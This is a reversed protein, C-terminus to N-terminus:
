KITLHGVKVTSKVYRFLLIMPTGFMILSLAFQWIPLGGITFQFHFMFIFSFVVWALIAKDSWPAVKWLGFSCILYCITGLASLVVKIVDGQNLAFNIQMFGPIDLFFFIYALLTFATPRKSFYVEKPPKGSIERKVRPVYSFLFYPIAAIVSTFLFAIGWNWKVKLDKRKILDAIMWFLLCFAGITGWAHIFYIILPVAQTEYKDLFGSYILGMCLCFGLLFFSGIAIQKM